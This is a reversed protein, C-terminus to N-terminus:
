GCVEEVISGAVDPSWVWRQHAPAGPPPTGPMWGCSRLYKSSSARHAECIPRWNILPRNMFSALVMPGNNVFLCLGARQYLRARDTVHLAAAHDCELGDINEGARETDRVVVVRYGRRRLDLGAAVWEGVDSNREPWHVAERLTMVILGPEEEGDARLCRSRPDAWAALQAPLGYVKRRFGFVGDLGDRDPLREVTRVSGLLGAMPLVVREMMAERDATAEPWATTERHGERPGPAFVIDLRDEGRNQREIEASVLFTVFDYTPPSGSLDYCARM